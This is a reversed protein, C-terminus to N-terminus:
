TTKFVGAKRFRFTGNGYFQLQHRLQTTSSTVVAPYTRLVGSWEVAPRTESNASYNDYSSLAPSATQHILALDFVSFTSGSLVEVEAIASVTDGVIFNTTVVGYNRIWSLQSANNTVTVKVWSPGGDSAAEVAYTLGAAAGGAGTILTWSPPLGTGGGAGDEFHSNATVWTAADQAPFPDLSSLNASIQPLIDTAIEFSGRPSLHTYDGNLYAPDMAASASAGVRLRDDFRAFPIGRTTAAAALLDNLPDISPKYGILGHPFVEIAIVQKGGALLADWLAITDAATKAVTHGDSLSNVGAQVLITDASDAIVDAVHALLEESNEGDWGFDHDTRGAAGTFPVTGGTLIRLWTVYSYSNVTDTDSHRNTQSDGFATFSAVQITFPNGPSLTPSVSAAGPTGPTLTPSVSAAGATAPSLTPVAFKVGATDLYERPSVAIADTQVSAVSITNGGTVFTIVNNSGWAAVAAPTLIAPDDATQAVVAPSLAGLQLYWGGDSVGSGDDLAFSYNDTGGTIRLRGDKVWVGVESDTVLYYDGNAAAHAGTIGTVRM